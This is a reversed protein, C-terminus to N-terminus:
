QGRLKWCREASDLAVRVAKSSVTSTEVPQAYEPFWIVLSADALLAASLILQARSRGFGLLREARLFDAEFFRGDSFKIGQQGLDPKLVANHRNNPGQYEGEVVIAIEPGQSDVQIHLRVEVEDLAPDALTVPGLDVRCFRVQSPHIVSDDLPKSHISAWESYGSRYCPRDQFIAEGQKGACHFINEAPSKDALMVLILTFYRAIFKM